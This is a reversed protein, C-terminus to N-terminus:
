EMTISFIMGRVEICCRNMGAIRLADGQVCIKGHKVGVVIREDTYELIGRHHEISVSHNGHIQIYPVNPLTESPMSLREEMTNFWDIKVHDGLVNYALKALNQM